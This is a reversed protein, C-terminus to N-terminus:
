NGNEEGKKAMNFIYDEELGLYNLLMKTPIYKRSSSPLKKGSGVMEEEIEKRIKTASHRSCSNIKMIGETDIWPFSILQSLERYDM